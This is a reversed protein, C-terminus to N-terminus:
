EVEGLAINHAENRIASDITACFAYEALADKVVARDADSRIIGKETLKELLAEIM